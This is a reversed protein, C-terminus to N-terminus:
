RIPTLDRWNMSVRISGSPQSGSNAIILFKKGDPAVDYDRWGSPGMAFLPRPAGANGDAGHFPVAMM